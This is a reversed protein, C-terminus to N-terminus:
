RGFRNHAKNHCKICLAQCNNYALRLKWGEETQIPIIHHTEVALKECKKCKYKSDQLVKASLIIWLYSGYFDKYKKDRSRNYRSTSRKKTEDADKVVLPKCKSCYVEPYVILKQCRRCIKAIM